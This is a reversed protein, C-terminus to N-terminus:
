IITINQMKGSGFPRVRRETYLISAWTTRQRLDDLGNGNLVNAYQRVYRTFGVSHVGLPPKKPVIGVDHEMSFQAAEEMTPWRVDKVESRFWFRLTKCYFTDDGLLYWWYPFKSFWKRYVSSAIECLHKSRLSFGGNGVSYKRPYLDYYTAHRVWPAGIYDWKGVFQPLAAAVEDKEASSNGTVAKKVGKPSVEAFERQGFGYAYLDAIGVVEHLIKITSPNYYTPGGRGTVISLAQERVLQGDANKTLLRRLETAIESLIQGHLKKKGAANKNDVNSTEQIKAKRMDKDYSLLAFGPRYYSFDCALICLTNDM